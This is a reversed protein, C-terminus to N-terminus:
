SLACIVSGYGQEAPDSVFEIAEPDRERLDGWDTFAAV